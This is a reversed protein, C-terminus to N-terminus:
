LVKISFQNLSEIFHKEGSKLLIITKRRQGIIYIKNQNEATISVKHKQCLGMQDFHIITKLYDINMPSIM